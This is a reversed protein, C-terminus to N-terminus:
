KEKNTKIYGREIGHVLLSYVRDIIEGSLIALVAKEGDFWGVKKRGVIFNFEFQTEGEYPNDPIMELLESLTFGELQAKSTDVGLKKLNDMQEKDLTIKVM